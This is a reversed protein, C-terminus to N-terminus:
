VIGAELRADYATKNSPQHSHNRRKIKSRRNEQALREELQIAILTYATPAIAFVLHAATMVPASWFVM